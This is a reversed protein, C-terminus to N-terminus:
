TVNGTIVCVTGSIFLITAVGRTSLSVTAKDADTGAIYATTITCTITISGSTNNFISIIDGTSFVADPIEVSGGTGIEILQGVDTTALTYSTTKASGSRPVNLYGISGSTQFSPVELTTNSAISNPAKLAVYNSGNDTDEPLRIEAGATANGLVAFPSTMSALLTVVGSSNECYLKMDAINLGLEGPLLNGATPVAAATTSYYIQIPTFGAAAM